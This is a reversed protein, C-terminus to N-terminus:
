GYNKCPELKPIASWEDLIMPHAARGHVTFDPDPLDKLIKSSKLNRPSSKRDTDSQRLGSREVANRSKAL